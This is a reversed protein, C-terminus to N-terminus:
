LIFGQIKDEVGCKPCKIGLVTQRQSKMPVPTEIPTEMGQIRQVDTILGKVTIETAGLRLDRNQQYETPMFEVLRGDPGQIWARPKESM